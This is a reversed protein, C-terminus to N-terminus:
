VTGSPRWESRAQVANMQRNVVGPYRKGPYWPQKTVRDFGPVTQMHELMRTRMAADPLPGRCAEMNDSLHDPVSTAALAVTVTPHSIAWKLFYQSWTRVGLDAVFDPVPRDGVLQHLRGKELPMNVMVAVGHDAATPLVREEASREAISYRAQVFDVDGARIWNALPGFYAPDHHTVGIRRIRGEAKWAHLIPVVTEVNVLSHCQMVDIPTTRSLRQMSTRLSREAHSDDWLHDGTSWIKNTIFLDNQISAQVAHRAINEESLGYLPSVDVVRGGAAWFRRLVEVRTARADEPIADFTQFTGLGIAPLTLDTGPILRTILGNSMPRPSGSPGGGAVAAFVGGGAVAAAAGIGGAQLLQRRTPRWPGDANDSHGIEEGALAM